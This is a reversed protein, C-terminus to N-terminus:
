TGPFAVTPSAPTAVARWRAARVAAAVLADVARAKLGGVDTGDGGRVVVFRWAATCAEELAVAYAVAQAPTTLPSPLPYSAAPAVPTRDLATLTASLSTVLAAHADDSSRALAIQAADTLRPGLVPYGWVAQQEAALAQQAAAVLESEAGTTPPATTTPASGNSSAGAPAPSTM